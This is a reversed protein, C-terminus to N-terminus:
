HSHCEKLKTRMYEYLNEVLDMPKVLLNFASKLDTAQEVPSVILNIGIGIVVYPYSIETLVGALKKDNVLIDNLQKQTILDSNTIKRLYRELINIVESTLTNTENQYINLDQLNLIYSCYFNGLPSHWVRGNLRGRGDTQVDAIVGIDSSLKDKQVIKLAFNNTSGIEEFHKICLTM